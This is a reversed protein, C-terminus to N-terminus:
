YLFRWPIGPGRPSASEQASTLGCGDDLRNSPWYNGPVDKGQPKEKHDDKLVKHESHTLENVESNRIDWLGEIDLNSM